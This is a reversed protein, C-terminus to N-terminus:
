NAFAAIELNFSGRVWTNDPHSVFAILCRDNRLDVNDLCLELFAEFMRKRGRVIGPEGEEEEIEEDSQDEAKTGLLQLAALAQRGKSLLSSMSSLLGGVIGEKAPIDPVVAFPYLRRLHEHLLVFESYRRKVITGDVQFCIHYLTFSNQKSTGEIKVQLIPM